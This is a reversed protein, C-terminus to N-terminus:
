NLDLKYQLCSCKCVYAYAIFYTCNIYIQVCTSHLCICVFTFDFIGKDKIKTYRTSIKHDSWLKAIQWSLPSVSSSLFNGSHQWTRRPLFLRLPKFLTRVGRSCLSLFGLPYLTLPLFSLFVFTPLLMDLSSACSLVHLICLCLSSSLTLPLLVFILSCFLSSIIEISHKNVTSRPRPGQSLHNFM